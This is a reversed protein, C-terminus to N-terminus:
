RGSEDGLWRRNVDENDAGLRSPPAADHGPRQGTEVYRIPSLVKPVGDYWDRDLLGRATTHSFDALDDPDQVIGGPVGWKLFRELWEDATATAFIADLEKQLVRDGYDVPAGGAVDWSELLDMRDLGQCFAKFFKHEIACMVVDRDDSSRYIAYLAWERMEDPRKARRAARYAIAARSMEAAADWCSIDLWAGEGSVRARFLASVMATAAVNAGAEGAISSMPGGAAFHSRGDVKEVFAAGALGDMSYGHSPLTSLPGTQGFGTVSCIVLEPRRRRLEAFDIGLRQFAGPVSVEAIIDAKDALQFFRTLDEPDRLDLAVSLKGRNLNLHHFSEEENAMPPIRRLYDGGAPTEVKVVEAGLDALIRTALAGPILRSLDLVRVGELPRHSSESANM